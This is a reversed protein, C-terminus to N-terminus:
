YLFCSCLADSNGFINHSVLPFLFPISLAQSPLYSTHPRDSCASQTRYLSTDVSSIAISRQLATLRKCPSSLSLVGSVFLPPRGLLASFCAFYSAPSSSVFPTVNTMSLSGSSVGCFISSGIVSFGPLGLPDFVVVVSLVGVTLDLINM